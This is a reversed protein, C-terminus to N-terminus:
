PRLIDEDGLLLPIYIFFPFFIIAFSYSFLFYHHLISFLYQSVTKEFLQKGKNKGM